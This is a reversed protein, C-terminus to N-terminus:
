CGGGGCLCNLCFLTTCCDLGDMGGTGYHRYAPGGNQMMALAQRYEM